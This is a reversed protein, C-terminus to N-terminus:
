FQHFNLWYKTYELRRYCAVRTFSHSSRFVAVCCYLTRALIEYAVRKCTNQMEQRCVKKIELDTLKKFFFDCNNYM